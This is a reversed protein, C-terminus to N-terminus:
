ANVLQDTDPPACTASALAAVVVAFIVAAPVRVAFKWLVCYVRVIASDPGPVVVGAGPVENNSVATRCAIWPVGVDAHSVRTCQTPVAPACNLVSELAHENLALAVTVAANPMLAAVVGVCVEGAWASVARLLVTFNLHDAWAVVSLANIRAKLVSLVVKM